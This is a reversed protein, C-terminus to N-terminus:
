PYLVMTPPSAARGWDHVNTRDDGETFSFFVWYPIEVRHPARGDIPISVTENKKVSFISGSGSVGHPFIVTVDADTPNNVVMVPETKTEIIVVAPDIKGTQDVISLTVPCAKPEINM